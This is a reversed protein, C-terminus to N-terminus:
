KAKRLTDPSYGHVVALLRPFLVNALPVETGNIRISSGAASMADRLGIQRGGCVVRLIIPTLTADWDVLTAIEDPASIERVVVYAPRWERAITFLFAPAVVRYCPHKPNQRAVIMPFLDYLPQGLRGEFQPALRCCEAVTQRIRAQAGTQKHNRHLDTPIDDIYVTDGAVRCPLRRLVGVVNGPTTAALTSVLQEYVTDPTAALDKCVQRLAAPTARLVVTGDRDRTIAVGSGLKTKDTPSGM